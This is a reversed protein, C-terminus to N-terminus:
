IDTCFKKFCQFTVVLEPKPSEWAIRSLGWLINYGILLFFLKKCLWRYAQQLHRVKGYWTWDDNLSCVTASLLRHSILTIYTLWILKWSVMFGRFACHALYWYRKNLSRTDLSRFSSFLLHYLGSTRVLVTNIVPNCRFHIALDENDLQSFKLFRPLFYYRLENRVKLPKEKTYTQASDSSETCNPFSLNPFRFHSLNKGKSKFEYLRKGRNKWRGM